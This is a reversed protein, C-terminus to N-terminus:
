LGSGGIYPWIQAAYFLALVLLNRMLKEKRKSKRLTIGTEVGFEVGLRVVGRRKVWIVAFGTLKWHAFM